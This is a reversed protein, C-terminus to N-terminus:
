AVAREREESTEQGGSAGGLLEEELAALAVHVASSEEILHLAMEATLLGRREGAAVDRGFRRLALEAGSLFREARAPDAARCAGGVLVVVIAASSRLAQACALGGPDPLDRTLDHTLLSLRDAANRAAAHVDETM